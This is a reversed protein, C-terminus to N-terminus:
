NVTAQMPPGLKLLLRTRYAYLVCVSVLIGRMILATLLTATSLWQLIKKLKKPGMDPNPNLVASWSGNASTHLDCDWM